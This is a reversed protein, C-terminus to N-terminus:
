YLCASKGGPSRVFVWICTVIVYLGVIPGKFSLRGSIQNRALFDSSLVFSKKTFRRIKLLPPSIASCDYSTLLM